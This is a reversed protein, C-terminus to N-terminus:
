SLFLACVCLPTYVSSTPSLASAHALDIPLISAIFSGTSLTTKSKLWILGAPSLSLPYPQILEPSLVIWLAKSAIQAIRLLRAPCSSSRM